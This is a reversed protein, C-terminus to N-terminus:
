YNIHIHSVKGDLGNKHYHSVRVWEDEYSSEFTNMKYVRPFKKKVYIRTWDDGTSASPSDYVDIYTRAPVFSISM